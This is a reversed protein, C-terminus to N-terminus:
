CKEKGKKHKLVTCMSLRLKFAGKVEREEEVTYFVHGCDECKRRRYIVNLEEDPITSNVSVKGKCKPCYM